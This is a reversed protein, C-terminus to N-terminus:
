INSCSCHQCSSDVPNTLPTHHAICVAQLGQVRLIACVPLFTTQGVCLEGVLSDAEENLRRICQLLWAFLRRYDAAATTVSARTQECRVLLQAALGRARELKAAQVRV